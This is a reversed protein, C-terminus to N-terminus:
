GNEREKKIIFWIGSDATALLQLNEFESAKGRLQYFCSKLYQSSGAMRIKVGREEELAQSMYELLKMKFPTLHLTAINGSM